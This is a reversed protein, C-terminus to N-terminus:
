KRGRHGVERKQKVVHGRKGSGFREEKMQDTASGRQPSEDKDLIVVSEGLWPHHASTIVAGGPDAAHEAHGPLVQAPFALFEARSVDFVDGM